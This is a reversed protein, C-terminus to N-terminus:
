RNKIHDMEYTTIIYQCQKKLKPLANRLMWEIIALEIGDYEHAIFNRVDQMGKLYQDEFYSLLHTDNKQKLCTFQESIGALLMLIAPRTTVADDLANVIGKSTEINKEIYEIKELISYIKSINETQM